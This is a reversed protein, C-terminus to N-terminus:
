ARKRLKFFSDERHSANSLIESNSFSETASDERMDNFDLAEIRSINEENEDVSITEAFCLMKEMETIYFPMESSKIELKALNAIKMIDKDTIVCIVQM